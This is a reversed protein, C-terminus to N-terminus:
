EHASGERIVKTELPELLTAAEAYEFRAERARLKLEEIDEATLHGGLPAMSKQIPGFGVRALALSSYKARVAVPCEISGDCIGRLFAAGAHAAARVDNQIDALMLHYMQEMIPEEQFLGVLSDAYSIPVRWIRPIPEVDQLFMASCLVGIALPVLLEKKRYRQTSAVQRLRREQQAVYSQVGNARWPQIHPMKVRNAFDLIHPTVDKRCRAYYTILHNEEKYPLRRVLERGPLSPVYRQIMPAPM